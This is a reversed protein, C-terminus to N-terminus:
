FDHKMLFHPGIGPMVYEESMKVFEHRLYFALAGTRANCWVLRAGHSRAHELCAQLIMAGCGKSRAAPLTAMGRLRWAGESKMAQDGSADNCVEPVVTGVALLTEDQYVGFHAAEAFEDGGYNSASSPFNPRLVTQRIPRTEEASIARLSLPKTM